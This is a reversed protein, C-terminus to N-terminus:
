PPTPAPTPPKMRLGDEAEYLGLARCGDAWYQKGGSANDRRERLKRIHDKTVIPINQCAQCLHSSAMNQAAQYVGWLKAPYYVAGRGRARIPYISCHKCRIGVQGLVVQKKRGQTNCEVDEIGAEFLELQHRVMIQYDSLQEADCALSLGIGARHPAMMMAPPMFGQQAMMMAPPMFMPMGQPSMHPFLMHPPGGQQQQQQLPTGADGSNDKAKSNDDSTGPKGQPTLQQLPPMAGFPFARGMPGMFMPHPSPYFGPGGGPYGVPMRAFHQGMAQQQLYQQQQLLQTASSKEQPSAEPADTKAKKRPTDEDGSEQSADPAAANSKSESDKEGSERRSRRKRTVAATPADDNKM